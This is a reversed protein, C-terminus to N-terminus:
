SPVKVLRGWTQRVLFGIGIGALLGVLLGAILRVLDDGIGQTALAALPRGLWGALSMGLLVGLIELVANRIFEKRKIKGQQYLDRHKGLIVLSATGLTVLLFVVGLRLGVAPFVWSLILLTLLLLFLLLTSYKRLFAAM